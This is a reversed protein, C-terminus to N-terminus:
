DPRSESRTDLLELLPEYFQLDRAKSPIVFLLPNNKPVPGNGVSLATTSAPTRIAVAREM